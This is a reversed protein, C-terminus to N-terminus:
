DADDVGVETLESEPTEGLHKILTEKDYGSKKFSDKM